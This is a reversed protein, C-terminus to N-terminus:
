RTWRPSGEVVRNTHLWARESPVGAPPFAKADYYVGHGDLFAHLANHPPGRRVGVRLREGPLREVLLPRDLPGPDLRAAGAGLWARAEADDAPLAGGRRAGERVLLVFARSARGQTRRDFASYGCAFMNPELIGALEEVVGDDRPPDPFPLGDRLAAEGAALRGTARAGAALGHMWWHLTGPERSGLGTWAVPGAAGGAMATASLEGREFRDLTPGLWGLREGRLGDATRGPECPEEALWAEEGADPPFGACARLARVEDRESSVVLGIMAEILNGPHAWAGHLRDLAAVAAEPDEGGLAEAGLLHLAVRAGLLNADAPLGGARREPRGDALWAGISGAVPKTRGLVDRLERRLARHSALLAEGAPDPVANEGAASRVAARRASGAAAHLPLLRAVLGQWHRQVAADVALGPPVLDGVGSGRGEAALRARVAALEAKGRARLVFPVAVLAAMAAAAAIWGRYRRGGAAGVGAGATGEGNESVM